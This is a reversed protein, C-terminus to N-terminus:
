RSAIDLEACYREKLVSWRNNDAWERSAAQQAELASRTNAYHKLTNALVNPATEYTEVPGTQMAVTKSLDSAVPVVPWNLNPSCDSMFVALGCAMAELVPLCLGGYRRPLVLAHHDAYMNWRDEVNRVTTIKPHNVRPIPSQHYLTMEVVHPIQRMATLVTNTGNRDEMANGAIHMVRFGGDSAARATIPIDDNVPVPLLVGAPLKDLRWTTPWWWTNPQPNSAMWFEPNGHVVTRVGDAGAWEILRWDYFTEVTVVVDLGSWWDRVTQEDLTNVLGSTDLAVTSADLYNSLHVPRGSPALVILTKDPKLNEYMALTQIGLGRDTEARALLGWKM